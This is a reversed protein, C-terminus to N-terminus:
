WAFYHRGLARLTPNLPLNAGCAFVYLPAHPAQRASFRIERAAEETMMRVQTTVAVPRSKSSPRLSGDFQRAYTNENWEPKM